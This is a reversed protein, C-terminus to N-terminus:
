GVEYPEAAMEGTPWPMPHEAALGKLETEPKLARLVVMFEAPATMADVVLGKPPLIIELAL